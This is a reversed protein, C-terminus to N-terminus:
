NVLPLGRKVLNDITLISGRAARWLFFSVRKHAKLCWIRKWPFLYTFPSCLFNYCSRVDFFVLGTLQWTLKDNGEGRPMNSYLLKFLNCVGKWNGTMYLEIFNYM